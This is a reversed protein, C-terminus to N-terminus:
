NELCEACVLLGSGECDVCQHSVTGIRVGATDTLDRWITGTGRCEYCPVTGYNCEHPPDKLADLEARLRQIEATACEDCFVHSIQDPDIYGFYEYWGDAMWVKGCTPCKKTM